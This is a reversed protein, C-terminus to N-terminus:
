NLDSDSEYATATEGTSSVYDSDSGDDDSKSQEGVLMARYNNVISRCSKLGENLRSSERELDDQRTTDSM